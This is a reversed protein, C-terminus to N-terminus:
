NNILYNAAATGTAVKISEIDAPNLSNLISADTRIGDIIVITNDDGRMRINPVAQINSNTTISVNPVKAQIANYVDLSTNWNDNCISYIKFPRVKEQIVPKQNVKTSILIVGNRGATGYCGFAQPNKLFDISVIDEPDINELISDNQNLPVGDVVYLPFDSNNFTGGCRITIKQESTSKNSVSDLLVETQSFISTLSLLGILTILFTKM